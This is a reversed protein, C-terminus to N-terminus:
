PNQHPEALRYRHVPPLEGVCGPRWTELVHASPTFLPRPLNEYPHWAWEAIVEPETVRPTGEFSTVKAAASLRPVGGTGDLLVALVAVRGPDAVLGTEEYLERVATRELSEGADNKGGPLEWHGHHDRGLLVRGQDTVIVGVGIMAHPVPM